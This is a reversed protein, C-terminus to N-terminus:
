IIPPKQHGVLVSLRPIPKSLVHQDAYASPWAVTTGDAYASPWAVTTGDAYASPWAVTSMAFYLSTLMVLLKTQKPARLVSWIMVSCTNLYYTIHLRTNQFKAYKGM